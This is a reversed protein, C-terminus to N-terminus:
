AEGAQNLRLNIKLKNSIMFVDLIILYEVRWGGAPLQGNNLHGIIDPIVVNVRCFKGNDAFIAINTPSTLVIKGIVALL